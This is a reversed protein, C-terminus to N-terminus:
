ESEVEADDSEYADDDSDDSESVQTDRHKARVVTKHTEEPTPEAVPTETPAAETAEPTPDVAAPTESQTDSALSVSDTARGSWIAQTNVAAAAAGSAIVTVLAVSSLIRSKM